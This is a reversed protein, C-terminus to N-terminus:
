LKLVIQINPNQKTSEDKAPAMHTLIPARMKTPPFEVGDHDGIGDMTPSNIGNGLFGTM